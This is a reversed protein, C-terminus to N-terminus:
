KEKAAFRDNDEQRSVDEGAARERRWDFDCRKGDMSRKGPM